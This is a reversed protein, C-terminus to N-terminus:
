ATCAFTSVDDPEGNENNRSRNRSFLRASILYGPDISSDSEHYFRINEGVVISHM